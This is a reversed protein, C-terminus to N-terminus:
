SKIYNLILAKRIGSTIPKMRHYPGRKTEIGIENLPNSFNKTCDLRIIQGFRPALRIKEQGQEIELEGGEWTGFPIIFTEMLNNIPDRHRLVESGTPYVQFFLTNASPKTSGYFTWVYRALEQIKPAFKEPPGYYFKFNGLWEPAPRLSGLKDKYLQDLETRYNQVSIIDLLEFSPM